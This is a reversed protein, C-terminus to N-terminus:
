ESNRGYWDTAWTAIDSVDDELWDLVNWIGYKKVARRVLFRALKRKWSM